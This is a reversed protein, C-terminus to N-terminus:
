YVVISTNLDTHGYLWAAQGEPLNICGHSGNGAFAQDGSADAHPFQTGPGYTDRWWADHIFYGGAHYLMAYHIFTDPYWYPSGRPDSSKFITPSLRAQISWLGPLSPREPRGTTVLFARVLKGNQYLRMAQEALSVIIIQGTLQYHKILQLDTAHVQDYPTKDNYDAEMMHLNFLANHAQNIVQTLDQVSTANALDDGLDFEIGNTLYSVNLPYSQGNYSDHYLHTNGWAKAESDLQLLLKHGEIRLLAMKIQNIDDDLHNALDQFDAISMYRSTMVKYRKIDQEYKTTDQAQAHLLQIQKQLTDSKTALFYPISVTVVALAQQYQTNVDSHLQRAARLTAINNLMQVDQQYFSMLPTVELHLNNAQDITQKLSPMQNNIDALVNLAQIDEHIQSSVRAYDKPYQAQSFATQIQVLQLSFNGSPQHQTQGQQLTTQFDLLDQQTQSRAQKTYSTILAQLQSVLLSYASTLNHYYTEAPVNSFLNFPPHSNALQQDTRLLPQLPFAPVGIRQAYKLQQDFRVQNWHAIQQAQSEKGCASMLLTMSVLLLALIAQALRSCTKVPHFM